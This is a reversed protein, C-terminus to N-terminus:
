EVIFKETIEWNERLPIKKTYYIVKEPQQRKEFDGADWKGNKNSDVIVRVVYTNAMLYDWVISKSKLPSKLQRVIKSKDDLLEVIINPEKTELDLKITGFRIPNKIPYKQLLKGSFDKEVSEFAMSDVFVRLEEKFKITKEISLKTKYEDWRYENAQLEIFTISDKDKQFRIKKLDENAIPKSFLLELIFTNNVGEGESKNFIQVKLQEKKPKSSKIEKPFLVKKEIETINDLSDTAIIKLSLSDYVKPTNFLVVEKGNNSVQYAIKPESEIKINSIGKNFDIFARDVQSNSPRIRLLKSAKKDSVSLLLKLSDINKSSLEVDTTLFGIAEQEPNLINNNNNDKFVYLSYKGAKLNQLKFNGNKDTQTTYYPRHKDVKLTDDALALWVTCESAPTNELPYVANGAIQLSDLKDGTSFVVKLDKVTNNETVDGIGKGFNLTYTTNPNFPKEFELVITKKSDIVKYNGTISPTIILEKQLNNIKVWESFELIIVKGTYNTTKNAPLIKTVKPALTDKAGGTIGKPNACGWLFFMLFIAISNLLIAPFSM